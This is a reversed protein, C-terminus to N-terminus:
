DLSNRNKSLENFSAAMTLESESKDANKKADALSQAFFANAFWGQMLGEDVTTTRAVKMFERAWIACDTTSHLIMAVDRKMIRDRSHVYIQM